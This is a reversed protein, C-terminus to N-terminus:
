NVWINHQASISLIKNLSKGLVTYFFFRLVLELEAGLRSLVSGRGLPQESTAVADRKLASVGTNKCFNFNLKAKNYEQSTSSNGM